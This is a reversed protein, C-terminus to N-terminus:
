IERTCSRFWTFAHANWVLLGDEFGITRIRANKGFLCLNEVIDRTSYLLIGKKIKEHFVGYIQGKIPDPGAVTVYKCAGQTPGIRKPLLELLADLPFTTGKNEAVVRVLRLAFTDTLDEAEPAYLEETWGRIV